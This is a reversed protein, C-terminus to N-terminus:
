PSSGQPAPSTVPRGHLGSALDAVFGEITKAEPREAILRVVASGVVVGDAGISALAEVHEKTSVGFGVALPLATLRRLEELRLALGEPLDSRMGTTGYRSVVYLFGRSAKGIAAARAPPTAPSVLQVLDIGQADLLTRVEDSEELPMDPIILGDLGAARARAAFERPGLALIPNLYSMLVLPVETRARLRAALNLVDRPRAGSRLARQGAMQIEPGDAIPDSFPVGLELIDAGGRVCALALEETAALSPDGAMLYVLLASRGEGRARRFASALRTM